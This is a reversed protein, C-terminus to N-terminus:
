DPIEEPIEEIGQVGIRVPVRAYEGERGHEGELRVTCEIVNQRDLLVTDVIEVVQGEEAGIIRSRPFLTTECAEQPSEGVVIVVSNPARDRVDTLVDAGARGALVVIASGSLEKVDETVNAYDREVLRKALEGGGVVTVKPRM